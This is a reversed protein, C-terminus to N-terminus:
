SARELRRTGALSCFRCWVSHYRLPPPRLFPRPLRRALMTAGRVVPRRKYFPIASRPTAASQLQQKLLQQQLMGLSAPEGALVVSTEGNVLSIQVKDGMSGAELLKAVLDVHLGNVALMPTPPQALDTTAPVAEGTLVDENAVQQMRAGHWFLYEVMACGNAVFEENSSSMSVVVASAVGQSHGTVGKLRDRFEAPSVQLRDLVAAYNALQTLGILPYSVPASRLYALAPRSGLDESNLWELVGMGHEHMGGPLKQAEVSACARFLAYASGEVLQRVLRPKGGQGAAKAKSFLTVLEDFYDAGQGGFQGFLGAKQDHFVSSISRKPRRPACSRPSAPDWMSVAGTPFAQFTEWGFLKELISMSCSVSTRLTKQTEGLIKSMVPFSLKQDPFEDSVAGLLELVSAQGCTRVCTLPGGGEGGGGGCVCWV